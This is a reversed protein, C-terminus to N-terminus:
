TRVELLRGAGSLVLETLLALLAVSIAGAFLITADNTQLGRVIEDGLGITLEAHPGVSVGQLSAPSLFGSTSFTTVNFVAATATPNYVSLIARSGVTTFPTFSM